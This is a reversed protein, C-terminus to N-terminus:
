DIPQRDSGASRFKNPSGILTVQDFFAAVVAPDFLIGANQRLYGAVRQEDWANRYPRDSLLADWVDVVAFIRASLPIQEGALGRPYGSGNWREHHCYPIDLAPRLFSIGALLRYAHMPHKRMIEWEDSTLPGPKFLIADPVAMKGIDHLLAGRKIHVLQAEDFGMASAIALTMQLVRQSHGETEGDRLELAHAWGQITDDYAALMEQNTQEVTDMLSANEIAIAAQDALAEFFNLWEPDSPLRRRNFIELVGLVKGKAILPTCYYAIFGADAFEKRSLLTDPTEETHMVYIPQLHLAAWGAHNEGLNINVNSVCAEPMGVSARHVLQKNSNLLLLACADVDLERILKELLLNLVQDLEMSAAITMDVVRLTALRQMQKRFRDESSKKETIDRISILVSPQSHLEILRASALGFRIEGSKIRVKIEMDTVQGNLRLQEMMWKREEVQAWLNLELSTRGSLEAASYGALREFGENVEIFKGDSLRTIAIADPITLLATALKKEAEQLARQSQIHGSEDAVVVMVAPNNEWEIPMRTVRVWCTKGDPRQIRYIPTRRHDEDQLVPLTDVGNKFLESISIEALKEPTYGLIEVARSNTYVARDDQVLLVGDSSNEMLRRYKEESAALKKANLRMRRRYLWLWSLGLLIVVPIAALILLAIDNM